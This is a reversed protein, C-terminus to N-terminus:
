VIILSLNNDSDVRILVAHTMSTPAQVVERAMKMFDKMRIVMQCYLGGKVMDKNEKMERAKMSRYLYLVLM